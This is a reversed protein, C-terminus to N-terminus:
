PLILANGTLADLYFRVPLAVAMSALLLSCLPYQPFSSCRILFTHPHVQRLEMFRIYAPVAYTFHRQVPAALLLSRCSLVGRPESIRLHEFVSPLPPFMSVRNLCFPAAVTVGLSFPFRYLHGFDGPFLTDVHRLCTFVQLFLALIRWAELSCGAADPMSASHAFLDGSVLCSLLSQCPTFVFPLSFYLVSSDPCPLFCNQQAQLLVPPLYVLSVPLAYYLPPFLRHWRPISSDCLKPLTGLLRARLPRRFCASPSSSLFKGRLFGFVSALLLVVGQSFFDVSLWLWWKASHPAACSVLLGSRTKFVV